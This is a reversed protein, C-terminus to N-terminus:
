FGHEKVEKNLRKQLFKIEKECNNPPATFDDHELLWESCEKSLYRFKTPEPQRIGIWTLFLNGLIVLSVGVVKIWEKQKDTLNFM